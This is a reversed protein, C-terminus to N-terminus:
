FELGAKRAGDALAKVRGHYKYGGRDFAIKTIGAAIAKEGLKLGVQYSQKVKRGLKPSTKKDDKASDEKIGALDERLIKSITSIAVLTKGQEDDVIQAYIHNLSRFISLRPRESTGFLNKRIAVRRRARAKAKKYTTGKEM